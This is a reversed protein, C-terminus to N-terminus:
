YVVFLYPCGSCGQPVDLLMSQIVSPKLAIKLIIIALHVFPKFFYFLIQDYKKTMHTELQSVM